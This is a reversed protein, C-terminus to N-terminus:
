VTKWMRHSSRFSSNFGPRCLNSQLYPWISRSGKSNCPETRSWKIADNTKDLLLHFTARIMQFARINIFNLETTSQRDLYRNDWRIGAWRIVLKARNAWECVVRFSLPAPGYLCLLHFYSFSLSLISNPSNPLFFIYEPNTQLLFKSSIIFIKDFWDIQGIYNLNGRM